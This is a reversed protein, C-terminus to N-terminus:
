YMVVVHVSQWLLFAVKIQGNKRTGRPKQGLTIYKCHLKVNFHIWRGGTFQLMDGSPPPPDRGGPFAHTWALVYLTRVRVGLGSPSCVSLSAYSGVTCSACIPKFHIDPEGSM